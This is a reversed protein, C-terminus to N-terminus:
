FTEGRNEEEVRELWRRATPGHATLAAARGPPAMTLRALLYDGPLDDQGLREPWELALLAPRGAEIEDLWEFYEADPRGAGLRYLDFHAVPPSTPYLNYLTFSPSAIEARDGGPLALTLGRVLSTKGSGLAGALLLVASPPATEALIRGLRLTDAEAPLTLTLGPTPM